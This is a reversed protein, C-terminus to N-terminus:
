KWAELNMADALPEVEARRPLSPIAGSRSAALAGAASALLVAREVYRLEEP